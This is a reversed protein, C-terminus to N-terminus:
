VKICGIGVHLTTELTKNGEEGGKPVQVCPHTTHSADDDEAGHQESDTKEKSAVLLQSYVVVAHPIRDQDGGDHGGSNDKVAFSGSGFVGEDHVAGLDGHEKIPSLPM